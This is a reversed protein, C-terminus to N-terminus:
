SALNYPISSGFLSESFLNHLNMIEVDGNDFQVVVDHSLTEKLITAIRGSPYVRCKGGIYFDYIGRDAKSCPVGKSFLTNIGSEDIINLNIHRRM